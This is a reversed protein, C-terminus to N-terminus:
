YEQTFEMLAEKNCSVLKLSDLKNYNKWKTMVLNFTASVKGGKPIMM